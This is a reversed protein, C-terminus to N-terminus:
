GRTINTIDSPSARFVGFRIASGSSLNLPYTLPDSCRDPRHCWEWHPHHARLPGREVPVGPFARFRSVSAIPSRRSRSPLGFGSVMIRVGFRKVFRTPLHSSRLMLALGPIWGPCSWLLPSRTVSLCPLGFRMLDVHSSALAGRTARHTAYAM